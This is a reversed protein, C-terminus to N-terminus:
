SRLTATLRMPHLLLDLADRIHPAVVHAAALTAAYAGESQLVAIALAAEEMMLRDNRGNGLCVVREADLATVYDRKADSQATSQLLHLVCPLGALAAAATGFTDGSLVHVRLVEALRRVRDAVGEILVGDLALTGNFDLVLHELRLTASGPVTVEVM